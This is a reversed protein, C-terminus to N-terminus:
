GNDFSRLGVGDGGAKIQKLDTANITGHDSIPIEYKKGTRNDAVTLTGPGGGPM